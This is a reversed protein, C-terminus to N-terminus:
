DEDANPLSWIEILLSEERAAIREIIPKVETHWNLGGIKSGIRPVAFGAFGNGKAYAVAAEFSSEVWEERADAGPKQQSALNFIHFDPNEEVKVAQFGGPVLERSRCAAKYPELVAPFKLAIFKAIGAGMVGYTNVGHGIAPLTTSFIDGTKNVFLHSDKWIKNNRVSGLM